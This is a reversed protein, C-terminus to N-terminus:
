PENHDVSKEPKNASIHLFSRRSVMVWALCYVSLLRQLIDIIDDYIAEKGFCWYYSSKSSSISSTPIKAGIFRDPVFAVQRMNCDLDKKPPFDLLEQDNAHAHM